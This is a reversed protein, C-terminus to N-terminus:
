TRLHTKHGAHAGQRGQGPCSPRSFIAAAFAATPKRLCLPLVVKKGLTTVVENSKSPGHQIM